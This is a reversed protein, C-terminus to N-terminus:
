TAGMEGYMIDEFACTVHFLVLLGRASGKWYSFSNMEQQRLGDYGNYTGRIRSRM